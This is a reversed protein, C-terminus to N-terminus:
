RRYQHVPAASSGSATDIPSVPDPIALELGRPSADQSDFASTRMGSRELVQRLKPVPNRLAKSVYGDYHADPSLRFRDDLYRETRYSYLVVPLDVFDHAFRLLGSLSKQDHQGPVLFAFPDAVVACYLDPHNSLVYGAFAPTAETVDAGLVHNKYTDAFDPAIKDIMLIKRQM